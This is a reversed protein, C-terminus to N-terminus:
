NLDVRLGAFAQGDHERVQFAFLQEEKCDLDDWYNVLYIVDTPRITIGVVEAVIPSAPPGIEVLQGVDFCRITRM